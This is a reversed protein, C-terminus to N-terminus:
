EEEVESKTAKTTAGSTPTARIAGKNFWGMGIFSVRSFIGHLIRWEIEAANSETM